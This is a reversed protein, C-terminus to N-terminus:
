WTKWNSQRPWPLLVAMLSLTFNQCFGYRFAGPGFKLACMLPPGGLVGTLFSM